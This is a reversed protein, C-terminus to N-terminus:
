EQRLLVARCQLVASRVASPVAVLKGSGTQGGGEGGIRNGVGGLCRQDHYPALQVFIVQPLAIEKVGGQEAIVRM